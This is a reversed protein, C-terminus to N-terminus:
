KLPSPREKSWLSGVESSVAASSIRWPQSQLLFYATLALAKQGIYELATLGQAKNLTRLKHLQNDMLLFPIERPAEKKATQPQPPPVSYIDTNHTNTDTIACAKTHLFQTALSVRGEESSQLDQGGSALLSFLSVLPLLGLFGWTSSFSTWLVCVRKDEM